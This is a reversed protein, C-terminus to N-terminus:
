QNEEMYAIVELETTSDDELVTIGYFLDHLNRYTSHQLAIHVDRYRDLLKSHIDKLDYYTEFDTMEQEKFYELRELVEQELVPHKPMDLINSLKMPSCCALLMEKSSKPVVIGFVMASEEFIEMEDNEIINIIMKIMQIFTVSKGIRNVNLYKLTLNPLIGIKNLRDRLLTTYKPHYYRIM